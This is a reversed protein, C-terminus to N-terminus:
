ENGTLRNLTQIMREGLIFSAEVTEDIKEIESVYDANIRYEKLRTGDKHITRRTHGSNLFKRWVFTHSNDPPVRLNPDETELLIRAKWYVAYYLRSIASRKSAEDANLRLEDALNKYNNWDFSM